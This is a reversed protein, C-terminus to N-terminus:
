SGAVPADPAAGASAGAPGPRADPRGDPGGRHPGRPDDDHHPGDMGRPGRQGLQWEAYRRFGDDGLLKRLRESSQEDIREVDARERKRQAEMADHTKEHTADLADRRDLLIKRLEVQQQTSLSPITALEEASPLPPGHPGPPMPPAAVALTGAALCAAALSFALVRPPLRHIKIMTSM